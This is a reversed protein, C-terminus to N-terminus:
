DQDPFVGNMHYKKLAVFNKIIEVTGDLGLKSSNLVLDYNRFDKWEKGTYHEYYDRRHKDVSKIERRAEKEDKNRSKMIHKVKKDEDAYIYVSILGPEDILVENGCRGVLVFNKGSEALKREYDHVKETIIDELSNTYGNVSRSVFPRRRKEDYKKFAHLADPSMNSDEALQTLIDRDYLDYGLSDALRVAVEHGLSGHERNISIIIQDDM